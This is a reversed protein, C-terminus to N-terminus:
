DPQCGRSAKVQCIEMTTERRVGLKTAENGLLGLGAVTFGGSHRFNFGSLWTASMKIKGRQELASEADVNPRARASPFPPHQCDDGSATQRSLPEGLEPKRLSM